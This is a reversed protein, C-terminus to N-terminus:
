PQPRGREIAAVSIVDGHLDGRVSVTEGANARLREDAQDAFTYIKGDAILVFSAGHEVCELTCERPSAADPHTVGCHSSSIQGTVAQNVAHAVPTCALLNGLLGFAVLALAKMPVDGGVPLPMDRRLPVQGRLRLWPRVPMRADATETAPLWVPMRSRQLDRM